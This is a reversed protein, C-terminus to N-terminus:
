WLSTNRNVWKKGSKYHDVAEGYMEWFPMRNGSIFFGLWFYPIFYMCILLMFFRVGKMVRRGEPDQRKEKLSM